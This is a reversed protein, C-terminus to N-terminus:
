HDNKPLIVPCFSLVFQRIYKIACSLFKKQFMSGIELTTSQMGVRMERM